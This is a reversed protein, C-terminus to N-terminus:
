NGTAKHIAKYVAARVLNLKFCDPHKISKPFRPAASNIFELAEQLAALLEPASAILRANKETDYDTLRCVISGTSLSWDKEVFPSRQVEADETAVWRNDHCVHRGQDNPDPLVKWSKTKTNM